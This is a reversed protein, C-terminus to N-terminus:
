THVWQTPKEIVPEKQQKINISDVTSIIDADGHAYQYWWNAYPTVGWLYMATDRQSM